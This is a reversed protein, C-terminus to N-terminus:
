RLHTKEFHIQETGFSLAYVFGTRTSIGIEFQNLVNWIRFAKKNVKMGIDFEDDAMFSCYSSYFEDSSCLSKIGLNAIPINVSFDM